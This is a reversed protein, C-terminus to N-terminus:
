ADTHPTSIKAGPRAAVHQTRDHARIGAAFHISRTICVTETVQGRGIGHLIRNASIAITHQYAVAGVSIEFVASVPAPLFQIGSDPQMHVMFSRDPQEAISGACRAYSRGSP